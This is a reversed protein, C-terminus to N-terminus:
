PQLYVNANQGREQGFVDERKSKFYQPCVHNTIHDTDERALYQIKEWVAEPISRQLTQLWNPSADTLRQKAEKNWVAIIDMSWTHNSFNRQVSKWSTPMAYTLKTRPIFGLTTCYKPNDQVLARCANISKNEWNPLFLFTATPLESCMASRLSHQVCKLMKTDDYVPHCISFGTFNTAFANYNAGFVIDRHRESWYSSNGPDFDLASAMKEKSVMGCQQLAASIHQLLIRSYSERTLQSAKPTKLRAQHDQLLGVIESALCRVPSSMDRHLGNKQAEHFRERLLHFREPSMMGICKGDPKYICAARAEYLKPLSAKHTANIMPSRNQAIEDKLRVLGVTRNWVKYHGTPTIDVHPNTPQVDFCAKSRIEKGKTSKWRSHDISTCFGQRELNNLGEDLPPAIQKAEYIQIM